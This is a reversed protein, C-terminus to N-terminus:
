DKWKLLEATQTIHGDSEACVADVIQTFEDLSFKAMVVAYIPGKPVDKLERVTDSLADCMVRQMMNLM